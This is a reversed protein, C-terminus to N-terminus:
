LLPKKVQMHVTKVEKNEKLIIWLSLAPSLQRGM